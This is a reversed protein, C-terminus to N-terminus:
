KGNFDIGGFGLWEFVLRALWYVSVFTVACVAYVLVNHWIRTSIKM